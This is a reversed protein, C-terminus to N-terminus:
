EILRCTIQRGSTTCSKVKRHIGYSYAMSINGTRYFCAITQGQVTTGWFPVSYNKSQGAIDVRLKVLGGEGPDETFPANLENEWNIGKIDAAGPCTFVAKVEGGTATSSPFLALTLLLIISLKM